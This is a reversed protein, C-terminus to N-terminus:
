MEVNKKRQKTEYRVCKLSLYFKLTRCKFFCMSISCFDSQMLVQKPLCKPEHQHNQNTVTSLIKKWLFPQFQFLWVADLMLILSFTNFTISISWWKQNCAIIHRYFSLVPLLIRQLINARLASLTQCPSLAKIDLSLKVFHQRLLSSLPDWKLTYLVKASAHANGHQLWETTARKSSMKHGFTLLHIKRRAVGDSTMANKEM